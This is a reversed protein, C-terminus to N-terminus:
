EFTHFSLQEREYSAVYLIVIDNKVWAFNFLFLFHFKCLISLMFQLQGFFIPSSNRVMHQLSLNYQPQVNDM